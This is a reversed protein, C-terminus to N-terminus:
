SVELTMRIRDALNESLNSIAAVASFIKLWLQFATYPLSDESNFLKRLLPVQLQDAEHEMFAVERVMKKVKEAEVGGFSTELLENFEQVIRRVGYFCALNKKLFAQFDPRWDPPMELQRLTLLVAVDETQDAISDQLALIELLDVRDILLFLDKSLHNRIDHKTMDAEHELESIAVAITELKGFDGAAHADFLEELKVICRSVKEMHSQLPAFPSRGFLKILTRMLFGSLRQRLM